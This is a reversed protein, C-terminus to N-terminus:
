FRGSLAKIIMGMAKEADKLTEIRKGNLEVTGDEKAEISEEGITIQPKRKPLEIIHIQDSNVKLDDKM